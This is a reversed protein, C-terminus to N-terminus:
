LRKSQSFDYRGDDGTKRSVEIRQSRQIFTSTSLWLFNDYINGDKEISIIELSYLATSEDGVIASPPWYKICDGLRIEHVSHDDESM